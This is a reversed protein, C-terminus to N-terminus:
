AQSLERFSQAVKLDVFRGSGQLKVRYRDSEFGSPLRFNHVGDTALAQTYFTRFAWAGTAKDRTFAQFDVTWSGYAVAQAAGFNCPKPLSFEASQWVAPVDVGGNFQYLTTGNAYYFQDSLQSVHACQAQLGPLETMSGDAEDFRIMFPTFANSSSFAVLRGDWVSFRMTSLGAAYKKRWVERTFFRQGQALSASAGNLTVLGDHSAYMVYGDVVAMAWKSVGAQDVNIKSVTMADPAVGSVLHPVSRTIVVAGSGHPQIGVINSPLVKVYAPPWSWPRYADSFHLENGKFACMIGNPLMTLGRLTQEPAYADRTEIAMGLMGGRVNDSFTYSGPVAAGISGVYFYDEVTSEDPTRYICIEKIPAMGDDAVRDVVVSVAGDPMVDVLSPPSAPGEEGYSNRYTYVYARTSRNADSSAQVQTATYTTVGTGADKTLELTLTGDKKSFASNRTYTDILEKSEDTLSFARMRLVPFADAPTGTAKAPPTFRYGSPPVQLPTIDQEQYKIGSMEWHFKFELRANSSWYPSPAAAALKPATPPRKVGVLYSSVPPGGAPRTGLRNAVRFGDQGTYYMREFTDTALPSRVADVDYPWTYYTLGDDTYIGQPANSMAMLAFGDKTNRLEGYAFDCNHAITAEYEALLPDPVRPRLGTFKNLKFGAM